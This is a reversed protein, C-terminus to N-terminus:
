FQWFRTAPEDIRPADLHGPKPSLTVFTV